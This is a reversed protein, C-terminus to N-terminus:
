PEARNVRDFLQVDRELIGAADAFDPPTEALRDRIRASDRSFEESLRARDNEPIQKSHLCFRFIRPAVASPYDSTVLGSLSAPVVSSQPRRLSASRLSAADFSMLQRQEQCFGKTQERLKDGHECAATACSLLVVLCIFVKELRSM